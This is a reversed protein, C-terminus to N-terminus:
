LGISEGRSCVTRQNHLLHFLSNLGMAPYKEHLGVLERMLAQNSLGRKTPTRNLWDYYSSRSIELLRCLMDV